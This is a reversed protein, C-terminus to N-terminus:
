SCKFHVEVKYPKGLSHEVVDGGIAAVAGLDDVRGDGLVWLLTGANSINEAVSKTSLYENEPISGQYSTSENIVYMIQKQEKCYHSAQKIAERAGSAREDSKIVVLHRNNENPIVDNHHACANLLGLILCAMILNKM